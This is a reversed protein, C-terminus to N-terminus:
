QLGHSYWQCLSSSLVSIFTCFNTVRVATNLLVTAIRLQLFMIILFFFCFFSTQLGKFAPVHNLMGGEPWTCLVYFCLM